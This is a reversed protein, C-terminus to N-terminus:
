RRGAVGRRGRNAKNKREDEKRQKEQYKAREKFIFSIEDLLQPHQDYLGGAVPLHAWKMGEM